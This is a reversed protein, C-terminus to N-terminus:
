SGISLRQRKAPPEPRAQIGEGLLGLKRLAAYQAPVEQFACVMFATDALRQQKMKEGDRLLLHFKTFEVFQFNDFKREPLGDDFERMVSWPGDGMGVMVIVLPSESARVIAERTRNLCDLTEDVCGDALILLVHFQGGSGNVIEISRDILPAFSTPGSFQPKMLSKRYADALGDLAIVESASSLPRVSVHRTQVDGFIFAPLVGDDDFGKLSTSVARLACEYPNLGHPCDLTHLSEGHFTEKGQWLNSRTFDVGVILNCSEVGADKFAKLFNAEDAISDPNAWENSSNKNGSTGAQLASEVLNRVRGQFRREAASQSCGM